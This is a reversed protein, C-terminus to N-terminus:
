SRPRFENKLREKHILHNCKILKDLVSGIDDSWERTSFYVIGTSQSIRCRSFKNNVRSSIKAVVEEPSKQLVTSMEGIRVCSYFREVIRFNHEDIAAGIAEMYSEANMFRSVADRITEAAAREIVMSGLFQRVLVRMQEDNNKDEGLRLLMEGRAATVNRHESECTTVICFFSSLAVCDTRSGSMESLMLYLEAVKFFRRQGRNLQILLDYFELKTSTTGVEDFYRKRIKKETIEARVWNNNVICLRLQELQYIIVVEEPIMTFTEVPVDIVIKLAGCVDGAAECRKKIEESIYVREEELFMKGEVVEELLRSFFGTFGEEAQKADFLRRILWKLVPGSQARKISLVKVLSLLEQDSTCLAVLEDFIRKLEETDDSIRAEREEEFLQEM